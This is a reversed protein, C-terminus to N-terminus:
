TSEAKWGGQFTYM